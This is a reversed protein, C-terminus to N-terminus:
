DIGGARSLIRQTLISVLPTTSSIRFASLVREVDRRVCRGEQASSVNCCTVDIGVGDVVDNNGRPLAPVRQDGNETSDVPREDGTEM